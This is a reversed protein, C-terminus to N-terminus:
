LLPKGPKGPKVPKNTSSSKKVTYGKRLFLNESTSRHDFSTSFLSFIFLMFFM